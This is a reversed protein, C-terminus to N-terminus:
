KYHYPYNTISDSNSDQSSSGSSTQHIDLQQESADQLERCQFLLHM